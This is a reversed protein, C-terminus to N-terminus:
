RFVVAVVVPALMSDSVNAVPDKVGGAKGRRLARQDREIGLLQPDDIARLSQPTPGPLGEGRLLQHQELQDTCTLTPKRACRHLQCELTTRSDAQIEARCRM